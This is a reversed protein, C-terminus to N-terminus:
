LDALKCRNALVYLFTSLELESYRLELFFLIRWRRINMRSILYQLIELFKSELLIILRVFLREFTSLCGIPLRYTTAEIEFRRYIM